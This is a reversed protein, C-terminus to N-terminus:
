VHARGIQDQLEESTSFKQYTVNENRIRDILNQLQPDRQPAPTKIYILRPKGESLRYEEELGSIKMTQLVRGYSHWYIGIFIDSQDLYAQYLHRSRYPRAGSEFFVPSLRLGAISERAARREPALEELTSSVFVRLRQDPTRINVQNNLVRELSGASAEKSNEHMASLFERSAILTKAM